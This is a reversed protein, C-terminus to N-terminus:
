ASADRQRCRFFCKELELFRGRFNLIQQIDTAQSRKARGASLPIQRRFFAIPLPDAASSQPARIGTTLNM